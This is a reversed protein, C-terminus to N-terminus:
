EPSAGASAGNEGTRSMPPVTFAEEFAPITALAQRSSSFRRGPEKQLFKMLWDELYTTADPRLDRLRHPWRYLHADVMETVTQGDFATHGTLTEYLLCGLSYLDTRPDIPKRQFQEPAMYHISGMLANFHDTSQPQPAHVYKALGFDLIRVVFGDKEDPQLMFNGPKVDRHLINHTHAAVLGELSQRAFRLFDAMHLPGRELCDELTEGEIYEMVIYAQTGEMGCDYTTVINRHRLAAATMTERWTQELLARSDQDDNPNMIKVAVIRRIIRDWARHVESLGGSGIRDLLQYRGAV